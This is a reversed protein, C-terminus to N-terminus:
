GILPRGEPHTFRRERERFALALAVTVLGVRGAFMLVICTLQGATGLEPTLGTSLGVTAFASVSEFFAEEPEFTSTAAIVLTGLSVAVLALFGIAFARRLVAAPISRGYAVVEDRGRAEAWVVLMLVVFTGVKLGGATSASGGGILMLTQTVLLTEVRVEGYDMANFGATRPQVSAFFAGLVRDGTAEAGLTGSNTWEIVAIAVFGIVLLVVTGSLTIRSHLSYRSWRRRGVRRLDQWVPVGLGGAITAVAITMLMWADTRFGVMNDSWLAFGANNFASVSHFLGRWIAGAPSYGDSLLRLTISLWALAEVAVTVGVAVLLVQRLQSQDNQQREVGTMLRGRFGLRRTLALFALSTGTLIGLGGIQILGLIVAQGFGSWYTATDVVVLGTVCVASVATFLATMPSTASGDASAAPLMLLLAGLGIVLLFALAIARAPNGAFGERLRSPSVERRAATGLGGRDTNM